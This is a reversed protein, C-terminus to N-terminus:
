ARVAQTGLRAKLALLAVAFDETQGLLTLDNTPNGDDILEAKAFYYGYSKSLDCWGVVVSGGDGADIAVYVTPLVSTADKALYRLEDAAHRAQAQAGMLLERPAYENLPKSGPDFPTLM